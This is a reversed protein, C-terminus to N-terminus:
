DGRPLPRSGDDVLFRQLIQADAAAVILRERRGRQDVVDAVFVSGNRRLPALVRFGRDTISRRVRSRPSDTGPAAM